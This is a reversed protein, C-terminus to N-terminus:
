ARRSSRGRERQRAVFDGRGPDPHAPRRPNRARNRRAPAPRGLAQGRARGRDDRIQGPARRRFRRMPRDGGRAPSGRRDVDPRAYAINELVTGDFLFNDQLVVGLQARYDSLRVTQSTTATWSSGARRPATSPRSSASSRARAPARLARRAGDFDRAGGRLLDRAPGPVDPEYEFTVDEFEVRGEIRPLMSGRRRRRADETSRTASRGSGSWAPSRRPSRAGSRSSRSSPGSSCGSTCRTVLRVRRDDDPRRPHRQRRGVHDRRRRDRPAADFLSGVASFGTMTQAVNRFLRHVGKSFVLAERREARYAKVVRVGSFSETLRGSVEANIRSRERFLPRLTKFAYLLVFGFLSLVALAIGTLKANLRFLIVLALARGHGNRRRGRRPGHRRSQPHRGRGDDRPLPPSGVKTQDFYNVSLRGVHRQIRGACRRSPDSRRRESSRRWPSAVHRGPRARGRGRRRRPHALLERRGKGVVEDLLYKTM